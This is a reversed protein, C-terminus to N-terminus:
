IPMMPPRGDARDDEIGVYEAATYLRVDCRNFAPRISAVIVVSLQPYWLDNGPLKSLAYDVGISLKSLLHICLTQTSLVPPLSWQIHGRRKVNVSDYRGHFLGPSLDDRQRLFRGPLRESILHKQATRGRPLAADLGARGITCPDSGNHLVVTAVRIAQDQHSPVLSSYGFATSLKSDRLWTSNGVQALYSVQEPFSRTRCALLQLHKM